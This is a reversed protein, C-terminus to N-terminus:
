GHSPVELLNSVAALSKSVMPQPVIACAKIADFLTRTDGARCDAGIQCLGEVTGSSEAVANLARQVQKLLERPIVVTQEAM